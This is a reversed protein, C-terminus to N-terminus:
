TEDTIFGIRRAPKTPEKKKTAILLFSLMSMHQILTAKEGEVYGHFVITSPNSYEIETISLLIDKGFSALQVAVEHENDLEDEFGKIRRMIVEYQYDAQKYDRPIPSVRRSGDANTIIPLGGPVKRNM